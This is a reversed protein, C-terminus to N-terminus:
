LRTFFFYHAAVVFVSINRIFRRGLQLQVLYNPRFFKSFEHKRSIFAFISAFSIIFLRLIHWCLKWHLWKVANMVTILPLSNQYFIFLIKAAALKWCNSHISRVFIMLLMKGCQAYFCMSNWQWWIWKSDQRIQILSAAIRRQAWIVNGNNAMKSNKWRLLSCTAFNYLDNCWLAIQVKAFPVSLTNKLRSQAKIRFHLTTLKSYSVFIKDVNYNFCM